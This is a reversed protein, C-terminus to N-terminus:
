RVRRLEENLEELDFHEPDFEGGIWEIMDEHDPHDPDRIAEIFSEQYGWIGGSDEPPGNRKGATAVPYKQAKDRPLVKEVAIVHEWSDGFDYEYTLKDGEGLGLKALSVRQESRADELDFEPDSYYEGDVIFQHLHSETWGFATQLIRHLKSLTTDGTVQIRRWIPPKSGKLTVKLQYVTDAPKGAPAAAAPARKARRGSPRPADLGMQERMESALEPALQEIRDLAKLARTIDGMQGAVQVLMVHAPVSEPEVEAADEIASLAEEGRGLVLYGQAAVLLPGAEEPEYEEAAQLAALADEAKGTQAYSLGLGAQAMANEPDIDVAREFAAAAPKWRQQGMNVWGLLTHADTDDPSLKVVRKAAKEAEKMEGHQFAIRGLVRWAAPQKDDARVAERATQLAADAEGVMGLTEALRALIVADGPANAAAERLLSIGADLDGEEIRVGAKMFLAAPHGPSAALIGDIEAEAEEDEGLSSLVAALLLRVEPSDQHTDALRRMGALGADVDGESMKALLQEIEQGISPDM